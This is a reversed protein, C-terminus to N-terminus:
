EFRAHIFDRGRNLRRWLEERTSVRRAPLADSERLADNQAQLMRALLQRLRQEVWTDPLPGIKHARRLTVLAPSVLEDHRTFREFFHVPRDLKREPEDLLEEAPLTVSQFVQEAWGRPFFIIFSEVRTPSDIHIEYPQQDNLVLYGAENVSFWARDARYLASGNFMCKVSLLPCPAFADHRFGQAVFLSAQQLPPAPMIQQTDRIQPENAIRNEGKAMVAEDMKIALPWFASM